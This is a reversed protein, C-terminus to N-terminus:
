KKSGNQIMLITKSIDDSMTAASEPSLESRHVLLSDSWIELIVQHGDTLIKFRCSPFTKYEVSM